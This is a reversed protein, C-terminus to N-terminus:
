NNAKLDLLELQTMIRLYLIITIAGDNGILNGSLNIKSFNTIYNCSLNLSTLQQMKSLFQPLLLAGTFSFINNELNITTLQQLNALYPTLILIHSNLLKASHLDLSSICKPAMLLIREFPEINKIQKGNSCIPINFIHSTDIIM